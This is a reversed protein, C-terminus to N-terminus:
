VPWARVQQPSQLLHWTLLHLAATSSRPPISGKRRAEQLRRKIDAIGERVAAVEENNTSTQPFDLLSALV